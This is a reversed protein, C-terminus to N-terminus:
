LQERNIGRFSLASINCFNKILLSSGFELSTCDAGTRICGEVHLCCEGVLNQIYITRRSSYVLSGFELMMAIKAVLKSGAVQNIFSKM